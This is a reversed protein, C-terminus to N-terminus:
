EKNCIPRPRKNACQPPTQHNACSSVGKGNAILKVKAWSMRVGRLTALPNPKCTSLYEPLLPSIRALWPEMLLAGGDTVPDCAQADNLDESLTRTGAHFFLCASDESKAKGRAFADSFVDVCASGCTATSTLQVSVDPHKQLVQNISGSGTNTGGLSNFFITNIPALNRPRESIHNEIDHAMGTRIDGEAYMVGGEVDYDAVIWKGPPEPDPYVFRTAFTLFTFLLAVVGTLVSRRSVEDLRMKGLVLSFLKSSM